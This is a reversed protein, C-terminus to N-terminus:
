LSLSDTMERLGSKSLDLDSQVSLVTRTQLVNIVWHSLFEVSFLETFRALSESIGLSLNSSKRKWTCVIIVAYNGNSANFDVCGHASSEDQSPDSAHLILRVESTWAEVGDGVGDVGEIVKSGVPLVEEVVVLPVIEEDCVYDM